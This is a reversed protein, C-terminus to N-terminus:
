PATAPALLVASAAPVTLTVGHPGDAVPTRRPAPLTGTVTPDAFSRGGLSVGSTADLGPARLTEAGLPTSRLGTLTVRAPRTPDANVITTRVTGDPARTAFAQVDGGALSNTVAVARSGPPFAAAFLRLGYYLPSIQARWRGHREAFAFPAYLAGPLTHINVGDVGATALDFLVEVAWLASAFTNSVGPAGECSASNLEDVRLALGEAHLARAQPALAAALGSTAHASLLNAVTPYTPSSPSTGCNTLAYRHVTILGVRPLRPALGVLAPLWRLTALAGAAVPLGPLLGIWRRLEHRYTSFPYPGSRRTVTTGAPTTYWPFRRYLDPENGIELAAIHARGIGAVLSAAEVAALRPDDAALNVGLILRAHLDRAAAAVTALWDPSLAYTVGLPPLGGPLPWWSDDSSNGGIRIIPSRGQGLGRILQLLLPDPARPDRGLYAHIAGFEFSFGLFGPPLRAGTATARVRVRVVQPTPPSATTDSGGGTSTPTDSTTSTTTSTTTDTTTGPLGPPLVPDPSAAAARHGGLGLLGLLGLAAALGAGAALRRRLHRRFRM